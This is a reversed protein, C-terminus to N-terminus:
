YSFYNFFTANKHFVNKLKKKKASWEISKGSCKKIVRREPEYGLGCPSVLSAALSLATCSRPNLGAHSTFVPVNLGRVVKQLGPIEREGNIDRVDQKYARCNIHLIFKFIYCKKQLNKIKKMAIRASTKMSPRPFRPWAQRWPLIAAFLRGHVIWTTRRVYHNCFHVPLRFGLGCEVSRSRRRKDATM